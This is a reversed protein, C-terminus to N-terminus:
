SEELAAELVNKIEEDDEESIGLFPRGEIKIHVQKASVWKGDIKFRLVPGRRPLPGSMGLSCLLRGSIM